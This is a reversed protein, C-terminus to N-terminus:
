EQKTINEAVSIMNKVLHEIEKPPEGHDFTPTSVEIDENIFSLIAHPAGDYLRKNSPAKLFQWEEIASNKILQTIEDWDKQSYTYTNDNEQSRSDFIKIKSHTITIKKYFSRSTIKYTVAVNNQNKCRLTSLDNVAIPKLTNYNSIFMFTATFICLLWKM